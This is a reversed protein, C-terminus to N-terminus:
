YTYLIYFGKKLVSSFKKEWLIQYIRCSTIFDRARCLKGLSDSVLRKILKADWSRKFPLVITIIAIQPAVILLNWALSSLRCEFYKTRRHPICQIRKLETPGIPCRWRAILSRTAAFGGESKEFLYWSITSSVFLAVLWRLSKPLSSAWLNGCRFNCGEVSCFWRIMYERTHVHRWNELDRM